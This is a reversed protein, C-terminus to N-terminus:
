GPVLVRFSPFFPLYVLVIFFLLLFQREKKPVYGWLLVGWFFIAWLMDLRLFFPIFLLFIKLSNMFLRSIEQTLMREFIM